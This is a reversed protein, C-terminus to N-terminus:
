KDPTVTPVAATLAWVLKQRTPVLMGYYKMYFFFISKSKVYTLATQVNCKM